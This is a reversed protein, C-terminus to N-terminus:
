RQSSPLGIQHAPVATREVADCESGGREGVEVLLALVRV